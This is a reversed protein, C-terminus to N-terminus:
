MHPRFVNRCNLPIPELRFIHLACSSDYSRCRHKYPYQPIVFNFNSCSSPIDCVSNRSFIAVANPSFLAHLTKHRFPYTFINFLFIGVTANGDIISKVM